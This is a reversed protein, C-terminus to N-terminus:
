INKYIKYVLFLDIIFFLILVPVFRYWDIVIKGSDEDKKTIFFPKYYYLLGFFILFSMLFILFPTTYRLISPKGLQAKRAKGIGVGKTYCEKLSGFDDYGNPLNQSDGCYTKTPDIPVYDNVYNEDYPMNFGVSIGKNLCQRATGLTRQGNILYPHNQNNGCYINM